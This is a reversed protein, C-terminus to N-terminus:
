KKEKKSKTSKEVTVDETPSEDPTISLPLVETEQSNEQEKQLSTLVISNAESPTPPTPSSGLNNVSTTHTQSLIEDVIDYLDQSVSFTGRNLSIWEDWGELDNIGESELFRELSMKRRRLTHFLDVPGIKDEQQEKTM